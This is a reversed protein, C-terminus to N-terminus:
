VKSNIYDLLIVVYFRPSFVAIKKYYFCVLIYVCVCVCVYIYIYIYKTAKYLLVVELILLLM